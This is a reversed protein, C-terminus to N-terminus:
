EIDLIRRRVAALAHMVAASRVKDREGKLRLKTVTVHGRYCVGVYVLGVPKEATGGDPGAIGTVSVGIDAGAAKRIGCAMEAATEESVAGHAALTKESVGLYKMKAENSYTVVSESLVASVGPVSGLAATLLGATCSEACAITLQKEMLLGAVTTKMDQEDYGYVFAGVRKMVKQEMDHILAKAEQETGAKAAIRLTVENDKAYPALSPNANEMLDSLEEGLRAEGIGFLRLTRAYMSADSKSRLYPVVQETFMPLLERPPGPLLVAIKGQAELIVGPATGRSNHLVIAGQPIMAQKKNSEPCPGKLYSKIEAFIEEHFLLPVDFFAAVTEKTLDDDTPGLGGSFIVLDARSFALRIAESLRSPNDGAVTQYYMDIGLAFLERSLFQANTNVIDGVLIETGVAVIEAKM